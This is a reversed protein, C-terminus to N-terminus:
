RSKKRREAPPTARVPVAKQAAAQEIYARTSEELLMEVAACVRRLDPIFQSLDIRLVDDQVVAALADSLFRAERVLLPISYGQTQRVAGHEAANRLHAPSLDQGDAIAIVLDLVAPLNNRRGAASLPISRMEQDENAAQVCQAIIRERSERIIEALRKREPGSPQTPRQVLWTRIKSVLSEVDTPKVLYGHVQEQIARIASQFDPYGTLILRLAQPQASRMASIVTFGDGPSGMNLDAILVDFPHQMILGLADQVTAATTVNFGNARLLESLTLRIGEEDDVFLVKPRPNM